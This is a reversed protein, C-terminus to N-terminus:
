RGCTRMWTLPSQTLCCSARVMEASVTSGHRHLLLLARRQGMATAIEPDTQGAEWREGIEIREEFTTERGRQVM